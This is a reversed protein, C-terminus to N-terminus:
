NGGQGFSGSDKRGKGDFGHEHVIEMERGNEGGLTSRDGEKEAEIEGEEGEGNKLEEKEEESGFVKDWFVM